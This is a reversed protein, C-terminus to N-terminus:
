NKDVFVLNQMQLVPAVRLLIVILVLVLMVLLVPLFIVIQFVVCIFEM